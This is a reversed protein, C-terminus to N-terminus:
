MLKGKAILLRVNAASEMKDPQLNIFEEINVIRLSPNGLMVPDMIAAIKDEVKTGIEKLTFEKSLKNRNLLVMSCITKKLIRWIFKNKM